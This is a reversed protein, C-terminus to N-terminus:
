ADSRDSTVTRHRARRRQLLAAAMAVWPLVVLAVWWWASSTVTGIVGAEAREGTTVDFEFSGLVPHGDSSIARYDVRYTGALGPDDPVDQVVATDEIAAEGEAVVTGDPATLTVYSPRNMTENFTLRVQGPLTEVEGRAVPDSDVLGAHASVPGAAGLVVSGALLVVAAAVLLHPRVPTM